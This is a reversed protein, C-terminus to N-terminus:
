TGPANQTHRTPRACLGAGATFFSVPIDYPLPEAGERPMRIAAGGM